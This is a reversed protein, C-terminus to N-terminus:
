SVDEDGPDPIQNIKLTIEDIIPSELVSEGKYDCQNITVRLTIYGAKITNFTNNETDFDVIIGEEDNVIEFFITLCDTPMDEPYIYLYNNLNQKIGVYIKIINLEPKFGADLIKDFVKVVLLASEQNPLVALITAIGTQHVIVEEDIISIIDPNISIFEVDEISYNSNYIIVLDKLDDITFPNFIFVAIQTKAFIIDKADMVTITVEEEIISGLNDYGYFRYTVVGINKGLIEFRNNNRTINVIQNNGEVLEFMISEANVPLEIYEYQGKFITKNGINLSDIPEYSLIDYTFRASVGFIDEVVVEIQQKGIATAKIMYDNIEFLSGLLYFELSNIVYEDYIFYDRIDVIDGYPIFIYNEFNPKLIDYNNKNTVFVVFSYTQILDNKKVEVRISLQEIENDKINVYDSVNIIVDILQNSLINSEAIKEDNIYLTYLYNENKISNVKFKFNVKDNIDVLTTEFDNFTEIFFLDTAKQDKAKNEVFLNVIANVLLKHETEKYKEYQNNGINLYVINNNKTYYYNNYSDYRDYMTNNLNYMNMLPILSDIELDIQYSENVTYNLTQPTQINEKNMDFPYLVFHNKNIIELKDNKNNIKYIENSIDSFGIDDGFYGMWKHHGRTVSSTFIFPKGNQIQEDIARLAPENLSDNFIGQSLLIVDYNDMVVKNSCPFKANNKKFDQATCTDVTIIYYGNERFYQRYMQADFPDNFSNAVLNLVKIEKINNKVNIYGEYISTQGYNDAIIQYKVINSYLEPLYFSFQNNGKNINFDFILEDSEFNENQNVDLYFKVKAEDLNTLNFSFNILDNTRYIDEPREIFELNPKQSYLETIKMMALTTYFNNNNLSGTKITFVNEYDLFQYFSQYINSSQDSVSEQSIFVPLGKNIYDKIIQNAKLITIDNMYNEPIDQDGSTKNGHKFYGMYEFRGNKDFLIGYGHYLDNYWEGIYRLVYNKDYSIGYCNRKGELYHGVYKLDGNDYYEIGYGHFIANDFNNTQNLTTGVYRLIGNKYLIATHADSVTCKINENTQYNGPVFIIADYDSTLNSRDAVFQKITMTELEFNPINTIFDPNTLNNETILNQYIQKIKNFSQNIESIESTEDYYIRPTIELIKFTNKITRTDFENPTINFESFSYKIIDAIEENYNESTIISSIFSEEDQALAKITKTCLTVLLVIFFTTLSLLLYKFKKSM